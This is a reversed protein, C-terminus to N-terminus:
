KKPARPKVPKKKEKKEASDIGVGLSKNHDAISWLVFGVLGIAPIVSLVFGILNRTIGLSKDSGKGHSLWYGFFVLYPLAFVLPIITLFFAAMSALVTESIDVESYDGKIIQQVPMMAIDGVAAATQVVAVVAGVGTSSELAAEGATAALKAGATTTQKAVEQGIKQAGEQAVEGGIKGLGEKIIGQKVVEGGLKSGAQEGVEEAGGELIEKGTTKIGLKEGVSALDEAATELEGGGQSLPQVGDHPPEEAAAEKKGIGFKEKAYKKIKEKGRDELEQRLRGKGGGSSQDKSDEETEIPLNQEQPFFDGFSIVDDPQIPPRQNDAM